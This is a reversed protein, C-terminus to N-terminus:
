SGVESEGFASTGSKSRVLIYAVGIVSLAAVAPIWNKRLFAFVRKGLVEFTVHDGSGEAPLLESSDELDESDLMEGEGWSRAKQSGISRSSHSAKGNRKNMSTPKSMQIAM